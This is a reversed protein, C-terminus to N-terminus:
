LRREPMRVTQEQPRYKTKVHKLRHILKHRPRYLKATWHQQKPMHSVLWLFVYDLCVYIESECSKRGKKRQNEAYLNALLLTVFVLTKQCRTRDFNPFDYTM